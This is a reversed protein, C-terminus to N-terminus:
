LNAFESLDESAKSAVIGTTTPLHVQGSGRYPTAPGNPSSEERKAAEISCVDVGDRLFDIREGPRLPRCNFEFHGNTLPGTGEDLGLAMLVTSMFLLEEQSLFTGTIYKKYKDNVLHPRVLHSQGVSVVSVALAPTKNDDVM